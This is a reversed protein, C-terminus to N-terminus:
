APAMWVLGEPREAIRAHGDHHARVRVRGVHNLVHLNAQQGCADRFALRIGDSRAVQVIGRCETPGRSKPSAIETAERATRPGVEHHDRQVVRGHALDDVRDLRNDQASTPPVYARDDDVPPKDHFVPGNGPDIMFRKPCSSLKLEVPEDGLIWVPRDTM